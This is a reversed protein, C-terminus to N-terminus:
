GPAPDEPHERVPSGKLSYSMYYGVSLTPEIYTNSEMLRVVDQEKLEGDMPLHALSTVGAQLGQRFGAVTVNHITTPLGRRAAQDVAAELQESTIVKAGPQYTM